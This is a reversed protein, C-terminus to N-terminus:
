YELLGDMAPLGGQGKRTLASGTGSTCFNNALDSAQFQPGGLGPLVGNLNLQPTTSQILGAVGDPAAARVVNWGPIGPKANILQNGGVILNDGDAVIGKLNLRINGGQAAQAATDATIAGSQLLLIGGTIAIDGGNGNANGTVSTTIEANRLSILGGGRITIAGGDGDHASTSIASDALRLQDIFGISIPSAPANGTSQTTIQSGDTLAITRASVKLGGANAAGPEAIRGRNEVSLASAHGLTLANRAAVGVQGTLGTSTEFARASISGDDDLRITNGTVQVDGARGSGTTDSSIAGGNQIAVNRGADVQINGAKGASGTSTSIIGGNQLAVNGTVDVRIDGAKGLSNPNTAESTIGTSGSTGGGNVVLNGGTTLSVAGGDGLGSASTSILGGQAVSADGAASVTVQGANGQSYQGASSQIASGLGDVVLDANARVNVNGAQGASDTSTSIIGGGLVDVRGALVDVQGADGGSGTRARSVIGTTATNEQGNIGLDGGARVSVAGAQGQAYTDSSIAGGNQIAVNGGVAVGIDGAKGQSGPGAESAIGTLGPAGQGDILLNGGTALSVAGGQGQGATSTSIIGGHTVSAKGVSSVTVQGANGQSYQGASSQIASGLGDVVLDANARVNVNGAQGASDTSTSIIGGGLVDVRGALVDVQGADGGSGTRARSVIGTTATNEQGNIGLDGGARVSVAGAQGQAYTDSSIAGGNQIAVNRAADVRIDGAKGQSSPSAESAIGTLGPTGQGDILLNGGTTLSVAGAQGNASTSGTIVAGTRVLVDGAADITVQGVNGRSGPVANSGIATGADELTLTGGTNVSVIGANGSGATASSILGGERVLMDGNTSVRVIGGSGTSDQENAVAKIASGTGAVDLGGTATVNVSGGDGHASTSSSIVGGNIVELKGGSNISVEGAQGPGATDTLIAGGHHVMISGTAEVRVIGANGTSGHVARSSIGAPTLDNPFRDMRGDIEVNGGAKVTVTGAKGSDWTETSIRGGTELTVNRIAELHVNGVNGAGDATGYISSMDSITLDKGASVLVQGVQGLASAQSSILANSLLVDGNAHLVLDGADGSGQTAITISSGDELTLNNGARLVINGGRSVATDASADIILANGKMDLNGETSVAVNGANGQDVADASITGGDLQFSNGRIEVGGEPGAPTAGTNGASVMASTAGEPTQIVSVDGGWMAIRGGGDGSTDVTSDQITIAGAAIASPTDDPLPLHGNANRELSVEGTGQRSVLRIEGEATLSAGNGVNIKGGVLDITKGPNVSLAAGDVNLLSNNAQSAASFGFAAPAEATLSSSGPNSASYVAGDKFRLEDATSVHFDGAVNINAGSGFMVGAPNVLYFNAHGGPTSVLSGNIESGTGGTVRSIVNDLTNPTNEQFTVTQGSNVNFTNFSHFLNNGVTTGLTEPITVDVGSLSQIPGVTGDTVIGGDAQARPSLSAMCLLFALLHPHIKM